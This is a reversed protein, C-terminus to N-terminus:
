LCGREGTLKKGGACRSGGGAFLCLLLMIKDCERIYDAIAGWIKGM